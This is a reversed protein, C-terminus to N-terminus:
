FTNSVRLLNKKILNKLLNKNYLVVTINQFQQPCASKGSSKIFSVLFYFWQHGSNKVDCLLNWRATCALEGYKKHPWWKNNNFKSELIQYPLANFTRDVLVISM